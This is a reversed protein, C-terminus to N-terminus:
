MGLCSGLKRQKGHLPEAVRLYTTSFFSEALLNRVHNFAFSLENNFGHSDTLLSLRFGLGWVGFGM